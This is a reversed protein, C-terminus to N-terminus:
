KPHAGSKWIEGTVTKLGLFFVFMAPQYVIQVQLGLKYWGLVFFLIFIRTPFKQHAFGLKVVVMAEILFTLMALLIWWDGFFIWSKFLLLEGLIFDGVHDFYEGLKSTLGRSRAYYGDINDLLFNIVVFIVFGNHNRFLLYLAILGILWNVATIHNPRIFTKKEM